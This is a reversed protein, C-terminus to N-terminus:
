MYGEIFNMANHIWCDCDFGRESMFSFHEYNDEWIATVLEDVTYPKSM